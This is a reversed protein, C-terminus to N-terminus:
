VKKHFGLENSSINITKPEGTIKDRGLTISSEGRLYAKLHKKALARIKNSEAKDAKRIRKIEAESTDGPIESIVDFQHYNEAGIVPGNYKGRKELTIGQDGTSAVRM